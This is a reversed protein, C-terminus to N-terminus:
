GLSAIFFVIAGTVILIIPPAQFRGELFHNFENIDALVLAGAILIGLGSLQAILIFFGIANLLLWFNGATIQFEIKKLNIGNGRRFM